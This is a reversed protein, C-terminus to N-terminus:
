ESGDRYRAPLRAHRRKQRPGFVVLWAVHPVHAWAVLRGPVGVRPGQFLAGLLATAGLSARLGNGATARDAVPM